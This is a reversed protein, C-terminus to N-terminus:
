LDGNQHFANRETLAQTGLDGVIGIMPLPLEKCIHKIDLLTPEFSIGFNELTKLSASGPEQLDKPLGKISDWLYHPLKACIRPLASRSNSDIETTVCLEPVLYIEGIRGRDKVAFMPQDLDKIEVQYKELYYAAFTQPEKKKSRRQQPM